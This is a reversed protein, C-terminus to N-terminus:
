VKVVTLGHFSCVARLVREVNYSSTANTLITLIFAVARADKTMTVQTRIPKEPLM